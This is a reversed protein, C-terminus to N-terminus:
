RVKKLVIEKNIYDKIVNLVIGGLGLGAACYIEAVLPCHDAASPGPNTHSEESGETNITVLLFFPIHGRWMFHMEVNMQKQTFDERVKIKQQHCVKITTVTWM